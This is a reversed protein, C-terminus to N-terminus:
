RIIAPYELRGKEGPAVAALTWRIHTVDAHQAQRSTGDAQEVSLTALQGWTAGGDVSVTLEAPATPALRVASPVPNTVVFNTVPEASNNSYDTGFILKDGPVITEPEVLQVSPEGGDDILVKELKVDGKLAIAQEQAWTPAAGAIVSATLIIAATFKTLNKM